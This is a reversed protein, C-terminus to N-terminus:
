PAAFSSALGPVVTTTPRRASNDHVLIGADGVFYNHADAVVLNYVDITDAEEITEVIVPGAVGHLVTGPQLEKAMKWGQGAVWIPHGLTAQITEDGCRINLTPKQPRITRGLVTKYALEGSEADQTLVFDGIGLTEIERPGTKTWVLTGAAFCSHPVRAYGPMRHYELQSDVYRREYTPNEGDTSYENYEDWWNWWAKPDNGITQDTVNQLVAAVRANSAFAESNLKAVQHETTQAALAYKARSAEANRALRVAITADSEKGITAGGMDDILVTASDFDVQTLSSRSEISLNADRGERYLSHWYHVSGDVDHTVRLSSEFPMVLLSLLQPVFGHPSRQKLANAAASRVSEVPAIAAHRLLSDTAAQDASRAHAKVLALGFEHSKEFDANSGLKGHLTIEEVATLTVRDDCSALEALAQKRSRNDGAEFMRTWRAITPKSQRAAKRQQQAHERGAKFESRTILRGDHWRADLARLADNNYPEVAVVNSWHYKAEDALHQQECWRALAVQGDISQDAAERLLEYEVRAPDAAAAAQAEKVNSWKGGVLMEGRHWRAASYNPATDLASGLLAARQAADGITEARLADAVLRQATTEAAEDSAAATTLLNGGGLVLSFFLLRVSM